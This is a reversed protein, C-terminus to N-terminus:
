LLNKKPIISNSYYKCYEILGKKLEIKPTWGLKRIISSDIKRIKVGDPYKKNFKIKGKYNVIKKIMNALQQISVDEGGGVNIYDQTIKKKILFVIADALDEVNLFERRAKGSGWVEVTKKNNSKAFIFKKVLAPLVHSSKLDFNDGIGYLNAPQISIFNKKYKQRLYQCYKLSTIKALAYGENTKELSSTLLSSETIPQKVRKPYVCASGLNILKKVNNKLSSNIINMGIMTNIYLYDSQYRSNDLIGGVRGAANIVVDPKNREFWVEVSKQSTFDLEKRKCNLTIFKRDKKLLKCVAQGVMGEQGAVLIKQSM